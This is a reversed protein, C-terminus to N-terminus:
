LRVPQFSVHGAIVNIELALRGVDDIEIQVVRVHRVRKHRHSFDEM